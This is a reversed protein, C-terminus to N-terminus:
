PKTFEISGVDKNTVYVELSAWPNRLKPPGINGTIDNESLRYLHQTAGKRAYDTEGELAYDSHMVAGAAYLRRVETGDSAPVFNRHLPMGAATPIGATHCLDKLAIPMGHLAGRYRRGMIEREAERAQELALQPTVRAFAHLRPELAEIRQLLARTLEVPSLERAQLLRAAVPIYKNM